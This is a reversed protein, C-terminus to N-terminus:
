AHGVERIRSHMGLRLVASALTILFALFIDLAIASVRRTLIVWVFWFILILVGVFFFTLVIGVIMIALGIWFTRIMFDLHTDIEADKGREIYAYVLGAIAAIPVLFSGAFIAYTIIAPEYPNKPPPTYRQPDSM